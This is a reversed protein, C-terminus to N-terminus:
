GKRWRDFIVKRERAMESYASRLAPYLTKFIRYKREYVDTLRKEPYTVSRIGVIREAAKDPMSYEGAGVMALMAAGMAPGEEANLTLIESNFVSALIRKMSESRAGGGSVTIRSLDLGEVGEISNKLAFAVGEMVSLTMDAKETDASLGIFAGRANVDNHPAREGMLYPLFYVDSEGLRGSVSDEAKDFDNEGLVGMWWGNCSAASLICGMLHFKGDAHAFSHVIGDTATFEDKAIFVTGSTGLSLNCFGDKVTGTGIAAAANDAAGASVKALPLRYEAKAEGVVECSECIRPLWRPEVSCIELMRESWRKRKVDYLLTGSADSRDTVHAGTMMYVLYDKPLMIRRIRKYNEPENKKVWLLKPATFGAFAINGTESLLLDKGVTKNLYETEEECRGDNWLIAPRIVKDNEDLMVLGHMQGAFSIGKVTERDADSLLRELGRKLASLWDEPSQESYGSKPYSIPYGESVSSLIEGEATCLILKMASTGLDIGVYKNM